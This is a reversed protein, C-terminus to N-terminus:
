EFRARASWCTGGMSARRWASGACPGFGRSGGAFPAFVRALPHESSSEAGAAVELLQENTWGPQPVVEVVVPRGETVTGTKDFVVVTVRDMREFASADRVLIGLRAGRGTAVAVAMPTALGLACPCAILLVATGSLFGMGWSGVVLGWILITAVAIGLVVPVFVSAVRDALRQVDAKSGQAERVMRVIGALASESGLREARVLLTGDGNVTGGTVRDSPGKASPMSEGTLM